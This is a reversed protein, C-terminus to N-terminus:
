RERIAREAYLGAALAGAAWLSADAGIEGSFNASVFAFAYLGVALAIAVGPPRRAALRLLAWIAAGLFILYPLVGLVGLSYASEILSNHPYTRAGAVGMRKAEPTNDVFMAVGHGVVPEDPVARLASSWWERRISVTSIPPPEETPAAHGPQSTPGGNDTSTGPISVTLYYSSGINVTGAYGLAFGVVLAPLVLKWSERWRLLVLVGAAVVLAVVPGRSGPLITAAVLLAIGVVRWVERSGAARGLALLAIAGIAPYQAASIPDLYAIPSFRTSSVRSNLLVAIEIALFALGLFALARAARTLQPAPLSLALAATPITWLVLLAAFTRSLSGHSVLLVNLLFWCALLASAVAFAVTARQRSLLREALTTRHRWAGALCVLGVLAYWAATTATRPARGVVDLAGLYIFFGNLSVALTWPPLIPLM